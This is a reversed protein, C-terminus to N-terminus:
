PTDYPGPDFGIFVKATRGSTSPFTVTPNTHIFQTTTTGSPLLVAQQVLESYLVTEGEVVVVRIPLSIDGPGGAPGAVLRGSAAVTMVLQDGDVRCQRTTDVLSAQHIVKTPDNDGGKEYARFYATGERLNVDPCAGQVVLSQTAADVAPAANPNLANETDTSTCGALLALGLIAPAAFQGLSSKRM